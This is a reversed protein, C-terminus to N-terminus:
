RIEVVMCGMWPHVRWMLWPHGKRCGSGAGDIGHRRSSRRSVLGGDISHIIRGGALVELVSM